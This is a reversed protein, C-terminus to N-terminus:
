PKKSGNGDKQQDKLLPTRESESRALSQSRRQPSTTRSGNQTPTTVGSVIRREPIGGGRVRVKDFGSTVHHQLPPM